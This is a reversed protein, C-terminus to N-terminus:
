ESISEADGISKCAVPGSGKDLALMWKRSIFHVLCIVTKVTSETITAIGYTAPLSMRLKLGCVAALVVSIGWLCIMDVIMCWKTDGGARFVGVIMLYTFFHGPMDLAMLLLLWMGYQFSEASLSFISLVPARFIIVLISFCIALSPVWVAFHAAETYAGEANEEGLRKGVVIGAATCLGIFSVMMINEITRMVTLAAAGQTGLHGYIMILLTRGSGWLLETLFVPVSINLYMKIFTRDFGLLERIPAIAMNKKKYSIVYIIALNVFVSILSAIAAGQLGMPRFGLKGFILIYNLVVNTLVGCFSAVLPIRVNETSRLVTCAVMNIAVGLYGVAVIRLYNAGAEIVRIDDTYASMILGSAGYSVLSFLAGFGAAGILAVGYAHRIGTINKAGWYRAVFVAAGSSLGFIILNLFHSWSAAFGVAALAVDGITGVMVTDVLSFSTILLNQAAIPIALRLM